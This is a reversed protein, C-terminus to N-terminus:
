EGMLIKFLPCCGPDRCMKCTREPSVCGTDTIWQELDAETYNPWQLPTKQIKSRYRDQTIM